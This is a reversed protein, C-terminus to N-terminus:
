HAIGTTTKKKKGNTGGLYVSTRVVCNKSITAAASAPQSSLKMVGRFLLRSRRFSWAMFLCAGVGRRHSRAVRAEYIPEGTGLQLLFHGSASQRSSGRASELGWQHERGADVGM